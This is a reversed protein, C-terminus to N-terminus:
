RGRRRRAESVTFNHELRQKRPVLSFGAWPPRAEGSEVIPVLVYFGQETLSIEYKGTDDSVIDETLEEGGHTAVLHAVRASVVLDDTDPFPWRRGKEPRFRVVRVPVDALPQNAKDVIQGTVLCSQMSKLVMGPARLQDGEKPAFSFEAPYRKVALSVWHATLRYRGLTEGTLRFEGQKDVPWAYDQDGGARPRDRHLLLWSRSAPKGDQDTVRGSVCWRPRLEVDVRTSRGWEVKAPHARKEIPNSWVTLEYDGAPLHGLRYCGNEDARVRGYRLGDRWAEVYCPGLPPCGAGPSVTGEIAGGTGRYEPHRIPNILPNGLLVVKNQWWVWKEGMQLIYLAEGLTPCVTLLELLWGAAYMSVTAAIPASYSLVAQTNGHGCLYDGAAGVREARNPSFKGANCGNVWVFLPGPCLSRFVRPKPKRHPGCAFNRGGHAAMVMFECGHRLVDLYARGSGGLGAGLISGEGRLYTEGDYLERIRQGGRRLHYYDRPWTLQRRYYRVARSSFAVLDTVNRPGGPLWSVWLEPGPHQGERMEEVVGDGNEDTYRGDVDAFYAVCTRGKLDRAYPIDGVLILGTIGDKLHRAQVFRRVEELSRWSRQLVTAKLPMHREAERLWSQVASCVKRGLSQAVLTLVRQEPRTSFLTVGFISDAFRRGNRSLRRSLEFAVVNNEGPKLWQSVDKVARSQHDKPAQLHKQAEHMEREAAALRKQTAALKRQLPRNDPEKQLKGRVREIARRLGVVKRAGDADRSKSNQTTVCPVPNGNLYMMPGLSTRLRWDMLVYIRRGAWSSPVTIHNRLVVPPRTKKLIAAFGPADVRAWASDDVDTSGWKAGAAKAATKTNWRWEQLMFLAWPDPLREGALALSCFLHQILLLCISVAVARCPRTSPM